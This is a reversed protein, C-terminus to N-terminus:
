ELSSNLFQKLTEYRVNADYEVVNNGHVLKVTPYGQIDYKDALETEEECDVVKYDITYGNFKRNKNDKVFRDWEPKVKKSVPCWSATFYYLTAKKDNEIQSDITEKNPDDINRTNVNMQKVIFFAVVSLVAAIIAFLVYKSKLLSVIKNLLEM